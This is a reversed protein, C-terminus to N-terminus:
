PSEDELLADHLCKAACVIRNLEVEYVTGYVGCGLIVDTFELNSVM